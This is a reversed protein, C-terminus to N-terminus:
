RPVPVFRPDQLTFRTAVLLVDDDPIEHGAFRRRAAALEALIGESDTEEDICHLVAKIGDIGFMEGDANRTESLGDTFLLLRDGSAFHTSSVRCNPSIWVIM